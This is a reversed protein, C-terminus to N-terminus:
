QFKITLTKAMTLTPTGTFFTRRGMNSFLGFDPYRRLYGLVHKATQLHAEQPNKMIRNVVSIAHNIDPRTNTLFFPKGVLIMYLTANVPPTVSDKSLTLGEPVPTYSPTCHQM